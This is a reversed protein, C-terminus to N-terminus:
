RRSSGLAGYAYNLVLPSSFSLLGPIRFLSMLQWGSGVEKTPVEQLSIKYSNARGHELGVFPNDLSYMSPFMTIARPLCDWLVLGLVLWRGLLREPLTSGTLM